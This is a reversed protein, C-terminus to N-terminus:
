WQPEKLMYAAGKLFALIRRHALARTRALQSDTELMEATDSGAPSTTALM